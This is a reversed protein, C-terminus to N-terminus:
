KAKKDGDHLAPTKSIKDYPLIESTFLVKHLLRNLMRTGFVGSFYKEYMKSSKSPFIRVFEGRRNYELVTEYVIDRFKLCSTKRIAEDLHGFEEPYTDIVRDIIHNLNPNTAYNNM